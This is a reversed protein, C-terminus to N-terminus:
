IQLIAPLSYMKIYFERHREAHRALIFSNKTNYECSSIGQHSSHLKDIVNQRECKPIVIKNGCFLLEDASSLDDNVDWYKSTDDKTYKKYSPWGTNLYTVIKQLTEDQQTAKKLEQIRWLTAFLLSHVIAKKGDIYSTNHSLNAQIALYPTLLMRSREQFM